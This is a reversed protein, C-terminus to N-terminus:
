HSTEAGEGVLMEIEEPLQAQVHKMEGRSVYQTTISRIVIRIIEETPETWSFEQEGYKKQYEKVNAAFDEISKIRDPLEKYKWDDVYVAKLYFPLQAILNVSESVTIRDRLSHLVSRLIVKTQNTDNPHNLDEALRNIFTNAEQTYKEFHLAM